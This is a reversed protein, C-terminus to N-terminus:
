LYKRVSSVMIGTGVPVIAAGFFLFTWLLVTIYILSTLFGLPFAFVFAIVGFACCLKIAKLTNKGKYGGYRDAFTGGVIVGALPATISITSFIIVVHVPNNGLIDILYSTIWFQVGTVIFFMSCLGLTVCIYLLNCIVTTAQSCYRRFNNTEVVDFRTKKITPKKGLVKESNNKSLNKSPTVKPSKESIETKNKVITKSAVSQDDDDIIEETDGEVNIYNENELYFYIAIPIQFIGQLQIAFRWTLFNSFFNITVGAVLYGVMVGIASFTHLIGMWTASSEPPSYNNVWVPGYIVIFAETVGMM